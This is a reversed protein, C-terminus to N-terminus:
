ALALVGRLNRGERLDDYGRNIQDLPYTRTILEDLKLNGDEYMRLLRPIDTRPNASGYLAGVIQKEMITLDLGNVTFQMEAAPHLNTVVVRGRKAALALADAMLAGRGVSMSAIVAACMRGSTEARVLELAEEMSAATHTAGLELAKQRKLEVPDVAFIRNAGAMRAGQVANIGVGGIGVVVVDDGPTIGAAYVASGWGTVVGCGLLCATTLDTSRDVKICSAENVVTHEAFAGINCMLGLDVGAAHHRATEDLIQRGHAIHRGLDCLNSRGTTCPVCRGCTPLFGFVVADGVAVADVGPGVSEVIGAGEHGGVMPLALPLDGTVVHEDSHCLGSASLRVLVEGHKPPDLDIEEISWEHGVSWLVAARTKM